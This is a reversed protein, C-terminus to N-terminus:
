APNPLKKKGRETGARTEVTKRGDKIAAFLNKDQPRFRLIINAM